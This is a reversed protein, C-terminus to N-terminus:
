PRHTVSVGLNEIVEQPTYDEDAYSDFPRPILPKMAFTITGGDTLFSRLPTRLLDALDPMESLSIEMGLMIQQVIEAWSSGSQAVAFNLLLGRAGRDTFSMAAETIVAKEMWVDDMDLLSEEQESVNQFDINLLWEGIDEGIFELMDEALIKDQISLNVEALDKINFVGEGKHHYEEGQKIYESSASIDASIRDIGAIALIAKAQAAESSREELFIDFDKFNIHHYIEDPFEDISRNIIYQLPPTIGVEFSELGIVLGFSREKIELNHVVVKSDSDWRFFTVLDSVWDKGDIQLEPLIKEFVEEEIPINKFSIKDFSVIAEDTEVVGGKITLNEILVLQDDQLFAHALIVQEARMHAIEDNETFHWTVGKIDAEMTEPDHIGKEYTLYVEDSLHIRNEASASLPWVTMLMVVITATDKLNNLIM